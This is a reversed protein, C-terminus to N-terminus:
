ERGFLAPSVNYDDFNDVYEDERVDNPNKPNERSIVMTNDSFCLFELDGIFVDYVRFSGIPFAKYPGIWAIKYTLEKFEKSTEKWCKGCKYQTDPPELDLCNGYPTYVIASRDKTSIFRGCSNCRIDYM